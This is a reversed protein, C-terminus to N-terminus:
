RERRVVSRTGEPPRKEGFNHLREGVLYVEDRIRARWRKTAKGVEGAALVAVVLSAAIPYSYRYCKVQLEGGAELLGHGSPLLYLHQLLVLAIKTILPPLLLIFTSLLSAPLVLFRTALKVDPNLYGPAIIRRFAEAARSTPATFVLRLAIRAYVLGLAYGQLVHFTSPALSLPNNSDPNTLNALTALSLTTNTAAAGAEQSANTHDLISAAWTQLPLILYFQLVLAFITPVVVGLFGYVYCCRLVKAAFRKTKFFWASANLSQAKTKIFVAGSRGKLAVFILGGLLYAGASYAYIDNLGEAGPIFAALLQRGVILPVITACLGLAASFLWLCVMFLSVRVRFLPPVYVKAFYDNKKGEKDAVYVDDDDVQLFAEGSKPPRYQDNCPTLVFKGDHQFGADKEDGDATPEVKHKGFLAVLSGVWSRKAYTGEEDERRDDFLFHSLRLGRACRRLWWGYVSGMADTPRFVRLVLPTVFNYLFLNFPFELVPETSGWRVPFVGEVVQAVIWVVGGLCLIVLAGYVLASFAIKRLQVSVNRELVDRVPHFTPDDPDRVFWLVGRRLIKRCMGVFLAFHFMYCTGVFWHVFGWTWPKEGAYAWRTAVSAAPFLPLFALDLLLGCYLPFLLMEISIILIVKLVGGAQRLGDRINKETRRSSDSTTLPSDLAVYAAAVMALTLYGALVALARDTSSWSVLEPDLPIPPATFTLTNHRLDTLFNLVPETSTHLIHASSTLRAPLTPLHALTGLAQTAVAFVSGSSITEVTRTIAAGIYSLVADVEGGIERLSAHAQVSAALIAWSYKAEEVPADFDVLSGLRAGAHSSAVAVFNVMKELLGGHTWILWSYSQPLVPALLRLGFDMVRVVIGGFLLAVDVVLDALWGMSWLPLQVFYYVPHGVMILAGKGWVYPAVVALFITASVLLLCFASTQFLGIIPGQLGILEFIGELDEADEIAEPDLGAQQAAALVEPDPQPAALDAPAAHLVPEGNQVPVFPAQEGAEGGPGQRQREENPRPVPVQPARIDGWFWDALRGIWRGGFNFGPEEVRRPIEDVQEETAVPEPATPNPTADRAAQQRSDDFEGTDDLGFEERFVSAVRNGFSESNRREPPMRGEPHFPNNNTNNNVNDTDGGATGASDAANPVTDADQETWQLEGGGAGSGAARDEVVIERELKQLEEDEKAKAEESAPEPVATLRGRGTVKVRINIKADPGANTIPLPDFARLAKPLAANAADDDRFPSPDRTRAPVSHPLLSASPETPRPESTQPPFRMGNDDFVPVGARSGLIEPADQATEAQETPGEEGDALTRQVGIARSMFDREPIRPRRRAEAGEGEGADAVDGEEAQQSGDQGILSETREPLATRRTPTTANMEEQLVNMWRSKEAASYSGLKNHMENTLDELSHGAQLAVGIQQIVEAAAAVFRGYEVEGGEAGGTRMFETAEDFLELLRDMGVFEIANAAQASEAGRVLFQLRDLRRQAEELNERQRVLRMNDARLEDAADDLHQRLMQPDIGGANLNMLPQQQVVWERILFILIFGTIVVCTIIQGEFIDLLIHNFRPSSTPNALHPFNTLLSPSASAYTSNAGTTSNTAPTTSNPQFIATWAFTTLSFWLRAAFSKEGQDFSQPAFVDAVADGVSEVYSTNMGGAEQLQKAVMWEVFGERAWSADALWFMWRWVWRVVWPVLGLWVMGVLGGRIGRVIGQLVHVGARRVFVGWPLTAPMDADYLKTFRFATKCLECHTKKSHSLWEM